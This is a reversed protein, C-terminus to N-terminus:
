ACKWVLDWWGVHMVCSYVMIRERGVIHMVFLFLGMRYRRRERGGALLCM